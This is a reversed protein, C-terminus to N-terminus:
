KLAAALNKLNERMKLEYWEPSLDAPVVTELPDFEVFAANVLGRHRLEDLVTKASLNRTYQPEVAVVGVKAAACKEILKKLDEPNPESGPKQQVVDFVELKFEDAFYNMSEHFTVLKRQVKDKLLELGDAKLKELKAIYAAARRDYNVAHEPDAKKLADRIGEVMKIARGPGLWVHPDDGHEHKEGPKHVHHCVGELLCGRDLKSGLDVIQLNSNSSSKQLTAAASNDLNLGNIFLLDAKRLLRAEM